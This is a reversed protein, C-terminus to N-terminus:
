PNEVMDRFRTVAAYARQIYGEGTIGPYQKLDTSIELTLTGTYGSNRLHEARRAFNINGDFPIRHLDGNPQSLNDHIHTYVLRDGFLPMYERGGAFCAEHGLDWCFGVQPIDRYLEMVFALNALMRQNEFAVTVGTKVAHDILRDFRSHGLDNICPANRGSSLHVVAIPINNRQCSDLTDTLRRLMTEGEDGEQWMANIGDWPAHISEYTLGADAAAAAYRATAEAGDHMTFVAQFGTQSLLSFNEELTLPLTSIYNIGLKHMM